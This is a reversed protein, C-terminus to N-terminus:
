EAPAPKAGGDVSGAQSPVRGVGARGRRRDGNMREEALRFADAVHSGSAVQAWGVALRVAVEGAELWTDCAARVREVYAIAAIEDTEPLLAVFRSHGTRALVDAARANVRLTAAVPLILRDAAAQGLAAALTDLGDLEVVLVTVARGYRLFRRDEQELVMEWARPSALGTIPDVLSDDPHAELPHPPDDTGVSEPAVQPDPNAGPTMAAASAAFSARAAGPGAPDSPYLRNGDAAVRRMEVRTRAVLVLAALAILLGFVAALDLAQTM